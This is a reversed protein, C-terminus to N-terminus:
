MMCRKQEEQSINETLKERVEDPFQALIKQTSRGRM